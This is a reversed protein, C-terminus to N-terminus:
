DQILSIHEPPLYVCCRQGEAIRRAQIRPISVEVWHKSGSVTNVHLYCELQSISEVIRDATCSFINEGTKEVLHIFEPRIGVTV